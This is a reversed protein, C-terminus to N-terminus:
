ASSAWCCACSGARCSTPPMPGSLWYAWCLSLASRLADASLIAHHMSTIAAMYRGVLDAPFGAQRMLGFTTADSQSICDGVVGPALWVLLCFGLTLVTAVPLGVKKVMPAQKWNTLQFLEKRKSIEYLCLIALLPMTFEAIVLASSVTRFKAYM